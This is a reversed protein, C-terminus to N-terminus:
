KFKNKVQYKIMVKLNGSNIKDFKGVLIEDGTVTFKGEFINGSKELHTCKKNIVIGMDDIEDSSFKFLIEKNKSLNNYKPEIIHLEDPFTLITPFTKMEKSDATVLFQQRAILDSNVTGTKDTVFYLM